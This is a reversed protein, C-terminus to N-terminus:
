SKQRARGSLGRVQSEPARPSKMGHWPASCSMLYRQIAPLLLTLVAFGGPVELNWLGLCSFRACDAMWVAGCLIQIEDETLTEQQKLESSKM